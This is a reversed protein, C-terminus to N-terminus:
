GPPRVGGRPTLRPAPGAVVRRVVARRGVGRLAGGRHLGTERRAAALPRERDPHVARGTRRPPSRRDLRAGRHVGRSRLRVGM